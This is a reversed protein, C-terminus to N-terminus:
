IGAAVKNRQVYAHKTLLRALYWELEKRLVNILDPDRTFTPPRKYSSISIM